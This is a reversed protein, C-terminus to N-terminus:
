EAVELTEHGRYDLVGDASMFGSGSVHTFLGKVKVKNGADFDTPIPLLGTEPDPPEYRGREAKERAEELEKQNEAYGVVTLRKDSDTEGPEDAMFMHPAKVVCREGEECEPPEYVEVIHGTVEVVEDVTSRMKKRLGYVSYSSDDHQIPHPPPPLEPVEPLQPTVDPLREVRLNTEADEDCGLSLGALLGAAVIYPVARHM